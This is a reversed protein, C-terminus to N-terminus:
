RCCSGPLMTSRVCVEGPCTRVMSVWFGGMRTTTGPFTYRASESAVCVGINWWISPSSTSRFTVMASSFPVSSAKTRANKPGSRRVRKRGDNKGKM